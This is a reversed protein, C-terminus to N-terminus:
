PAPPIGAERHMVLLRAVFGAREFFNKTDRMGPLAPADVGRCGHKAAWELVRGLLAEGVGVGRAAPEVYLARLTAVATGDRLVTREYAALGVVAGDLTGVDVAATDGGLRAAFWDELPEALWSARVAMPGGREGSLEAAAQRSLVVLDGLDDRDAPRAAAAPAPTM